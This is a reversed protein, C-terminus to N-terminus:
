GSQLLKSEYTLWKKFTAVSKQSKVLWVVQGKKQVEPVRDPCAAAIRKERV